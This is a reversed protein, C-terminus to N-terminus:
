LQRGPDRPQELAKERDVTQLRRAKALTRINGLMQKIMRPPLSGYAWQNKSAPRIGEDRWQVRNTETLVIWSKRDDLGLRKRVKEPIEIASFPSRPPSHTIPAVLAQMGKENGPLAIVVACPREKDGEVQGERAQRAWLYDYKVVLGVVPDPRKM